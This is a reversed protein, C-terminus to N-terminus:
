RKAEAIAARLTAHGGERLSGHGSAFREIPYNLLKEASALALQKNWTGFNPLPFFWPCFGSVTLRGAAILADGTFLTGDREDLFSLHGPIHGPTEITLLSGYRDGEALLHTPTAKIGDLSGKIEGGPEGPQLSKDPPIQLLPLSRASAALELPPHIGTPPAIIEIIPDVCATHDMHAHTLLIRRIPAGLTRAAAVIDPASKPLGTDILTLGDHERLLYCNFLHGIRSLQYANASIQTTKMPYSYSAPRTHPPTNTKNKQTDNM